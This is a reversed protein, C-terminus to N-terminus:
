RSKEVLEDIRGRDQTDYGPGTTPEEGERVAREIVPAIRSALLGGQPAFRRLVEASAATLPYLAAGEIWGPIREKPTAATFLLNFVGLVVLARILGFGLGIARDISSLGQVSRVRETLSAGIVRLLIYLAVFLILVAAVTGAWDPDIVERAMPGTVRLAILSGLAALLFAMVTVMERVAGRIFGVGASILLVLGAFLDFLTM